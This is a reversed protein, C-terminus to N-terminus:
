EDPIAKPSIVIYREDGEGESYTEVDPDDQLAMHIIRREHPKLDTIVIEKRAARVRAAHAHAMRELMQRRRARYGEADLTIRVGQGLGRNAIIGVLLQLSNLTVGHRGILVGTGHGQIDITVERQDAASLVGHADTGMLRLIDDVAVLARDAVGSPSEDSRGEQAAPTEGAATEAQPGVAEDESAAPADGLVTARIQVEHGGLFGLLKKPEGIVEVSLEETTVGLEEAAQATADELTKATVEVSRM